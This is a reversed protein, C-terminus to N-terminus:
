WNAIRDLGVFQASKGTYEFLGIKVGGPDKTWAQWTDDCGM